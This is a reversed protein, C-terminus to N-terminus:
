KRGPSTIEDKDGFCLHGLQCEVDSISMFRSLSVYIFCLFARFNYIFKMKYFKNQTKKNLDILLITELTEFLNHFFVFSCFLFLLNLSDFFILIQDPM